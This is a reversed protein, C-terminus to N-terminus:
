RLPKYKAPRNNNRYLFYYKFSESSHNIFGAMGDFVLNKDTLFERSMGCRVQYPYKMDPSNSNVLNPNEVYLCPVLVKKAFVFRMNEIKLENKRREYDKIFTASQGKDSSIILDYKDFDINPVDEMTVFDIKYGEFELTKIIFAADSTNLFALIRNDTTFRDRIQNRLLCTPNLYVPNEEYSKCYAVERLYSISPHKSLLPYLMIFPRAWLHTSVFVLYFFAFVIIVYKFPNRKSFYSYVLVPSSLVIFFMIFRVTYSMYALLYSISILNVIFLLAFAFNFWVKRSKRVFIPKILAWILCPLYVLFGLIGPGMAPELLLRNVTFELSYLGDPIYGLHLFNLVVDRTKIVNDAVYDSWKFGTTDIFMFFYKIFNSVAGKIGYYNKSVVMFSKPGFFSGFQIFNLIYNYSSFILFNLLGFGLFYGLQKYKKYYFCLALLFLGVGPIAIISTTKTGLALAYALSSMYLPAKENNKLAYWFLFISSSVLGAIIIDTETSSIQVIVSAFSSFIFIVWLRKRLCYGLFGLINYVSAILLLYGCFSFMSLFVDKKFFLIVWSYLIESNIPLCLNRIDAINFHSLSGQLVWFVSRAVHYAHADANTIPMLLNLILASGVLTIFGVYLWMLSKDLKMANNVKNKFDRFELSWLPRQHKNWVIASAVFFLINLGLVWYQKILTFLSLIEFTLVIQAFAILLLYIFGLISKKPSIISTIFYSSVFVLLFSIFFLLM